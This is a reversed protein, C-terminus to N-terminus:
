IEVLDNIKSTGCSPNSGGVERKRLPHEVVSSSRCDIRRRAGSDRNAYGAGIAFALSTDNVDRLGARVPQRGCGPSM